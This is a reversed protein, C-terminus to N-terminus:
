MPGSIRTHMATAQMGPMHRSTSIIRPFRQGRMDPLGRSEDKATDSVMSCLGESREPHGTRVAGGDRAPRLGKQETIAPGMGANSAKRLIFASWYHLRIKRQALAFDRLNAPPRAPSKELLNKGEVTM